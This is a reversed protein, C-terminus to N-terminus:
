EVDSQTDHNVELRPRKVDTALGLVELARIVWASIDLQWWALGAFASSPFAHVFSTHLPPAHVCGSLPDHPPVVGHVPMQVFGM